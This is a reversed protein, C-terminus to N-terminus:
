GEAQTMKKFTIVNIVVVFVFCFSYITAHRRSVHRTVCCFLGICISVIM